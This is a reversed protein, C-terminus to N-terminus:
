QAKKYDLESALQALVGSPLREGARGFAAFFIGNVRFIKWPVNGVTFKLNNLEGMRLEKTCGSLKSYMQPILAAITDGNLSSDLKSAVLLGDPLVVLAGYVGELTSAKKVVEAPTAKRSMFTTSPSPGRFLSTDQMKAAEKEDDWVFYNTDAPLAPMAPMEKPVLPGPAAEAQPFGFFLNPIKEDVTIRKKGNALEKQRAMFLPAIVALPLSVVMGDHASVSPLPAPKIWSRLQKWTFAIKGSKLGAEVQDAPLALLAEDLNLQAMELRLAEPLAEGLAAFSLCYPSADALTPAPAAAPLRFGNGDGNGNGNGHGNAGHHGNSGNSGNVPKAAPPTPLKPLGTGPLKNAPPQSVAPLVAGTSASISPTVPRVPAAPAPKPLNTPLPTGPTIPKSVSTVNGRTRPDVAPPVPAAPRAGRPPLALSPKPKETSLTLGHGGPGFPSVIEEPIEIQRRSRSNLLTPAIRSVLENLPLTVMLFDRDAADLFAESAAQRIEGFSVRVLGQALQPLIKDLPLSVTSEGIRDAKVRQQLEVPFSAILSALPIVIEAGKVSVTAAPVTAPAPAVPAAKPLFAKRPEPATFPNEAMIATPALAEPAEATAPSVADPADAAGFDADVPVAAELESAPKGFIGKMLNFLKM